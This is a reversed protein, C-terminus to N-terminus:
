SALFLRKLFVEPTGPVKGTSVVPTGSDENTLLAAFAFPTIYGGTSVSERPYEV